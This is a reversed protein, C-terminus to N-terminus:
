PVGSSCGEPAQPRHPAHCEPHTRSSEGVALYRMNGTMFPIKERPGPVITVEVQALVSSRMSCEAFGGDHTRVSQQAGLQHNAIARYNLEFHPATGSWGAASKQRFSPSRSRSFLPVAALHTLFRRLPIAGCIVPFIDGRDSGMRFEGRNLNAAMNWIELRGRFEVCRQQFEKALSSVNVGAPEGLARRRAFHVIRPRDVHLNRHGKM